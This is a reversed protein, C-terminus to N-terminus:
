FRKNLICLILFLEDLTPTKWFIVDPPSLLSLGARSHYNVPNHIGLIGSMRMRVRRSVSAVHMSPDMVHRSLREQVAFGPM